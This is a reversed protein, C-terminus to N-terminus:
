RILEKSSSKSIVWIFYGVVIWFIEVFRYILAATLFGKSNVVLVNEMLFRIGEERSGVQYPIFFFLTDVFTRGVDLISSTLLSVPHNIFYFGLYLTLGEIFRAALDFFLSLSFVLPKRKFQSLLRRFSLRVNINVVRMKKFRFLMTMLIMKSNFLRACLFIFFCIFVCALLLSSLLHHSVSYFLTILILAMVFSLGTSFLHIINYNITSELAEKKPLYKQLMLYKLPEGGIKLFPTLNNWAISALTINMFIFFKRKVSFTKPMLEHKSTLLWSASYCFLTPIFSFVIVFLFVWNKKLDTSISVLGYNRIANILLFAGFITAGGRIFFDKKSNIIM